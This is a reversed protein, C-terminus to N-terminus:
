REARTWSNCTCCTSSSICFSSRRALLRRLLSRFDIASQHLFGVDADRQDVRRQIDHRRVLFLRLDDAPTRLLEDAPLAKALIFPQVRDARVTLPEFGHGGADGDLALPGPLSLVAPREHDLDLGRRQEFLVACRASEDLDHLVDGRPLPRLLRDARTLGTVPGQELVHEISNGMAPHQEVLAPRMVEEVEIHVLGKFGQGPQPVDDPLFRGRDNGPQPLGIRLQELDIAPHGHGAYRLCELPIHM